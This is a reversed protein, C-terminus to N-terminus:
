GCRHGRRMGQMDLGPDSAGVLNQRSICWDRINQLWEIPIGRFRDPVYAVENRELVPLANKAMDGMRVFWQELALPEIVNGANTTNRFCINTIKLRRSFIRNEWPRCCGGEPLRIPDMGAYSGAESTMRADLGIVQVEPLGHREGVAYDNPDHAPTVKVAGSGMEPDAYEDAVIPIAREMLPLQVRKGVADMWREDTPHVAVGSDGLMTEPRTTAVVVDPGGELGPYRIHWLHGQITEEAVELDSIM